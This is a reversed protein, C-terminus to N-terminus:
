MCTQLSLISSLFFLKIHTIVDITDQTAGTSPYLSWLLEHRNGLIWDDDDEMLLGPGREQPHVRHVLHLQDPVRLPPALVLKDRPNQDTWYGLSSADCRRPSPRPDTWLWSPSQVALSDNLVQIRTIPSCDLDHGAADKSCEPSM